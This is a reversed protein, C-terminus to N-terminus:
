FVLVRSRITALESTPFTSVLYESVPKEDAIGETLASDGIREDLRNPCATGTNLVAKAPNQNNSARKWLLGHFRCLYAIVRKGQRVVTRVPGYV